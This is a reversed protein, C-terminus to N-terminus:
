IFCIQFHLHSFDVQLELGTTMRPVPNARTAEVSRHEERLRLVWKKRHLNEEPVVEGVYDKRMGM